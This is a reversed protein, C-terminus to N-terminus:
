KRAWGRRAMCADMSSAQEGATALAAIPFLAAVPNLTSLQCSRADTRVDNVPRVDAAPQYASCGALWLMAGAAGVAMLRLQTHTM